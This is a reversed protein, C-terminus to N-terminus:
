FALTAPLATSADHVARALLDGASPASRDVRCPVGRAAGAIGLLSIATAVRV